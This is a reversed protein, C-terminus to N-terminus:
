AIERRRHHSDSLVKYICEESAAAIFRLAVRLPDRVSRWARVNRPAVAGDQSDCVGCPAPVSDDRKAACTGSHQGCAIVKDAAFAAALRRRYADQSGPLPSTHSPPGYLLLPCPPPAADISPHVFPCGCRAPMTTATLHARAEGAPSPLLAGSSSRGQNLADDAM